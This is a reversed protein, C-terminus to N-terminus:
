WKMNQLLTPLPLEESALSPSSEGVPAAKNGKARGKKASLSPRRSFAQFTALEPLVKQEYYACIRDSICEGVAGSKPAFLEGDFAGEPMSALAEIRDGAGAAEVAACHPVALETDFISSFTASASFPGRPAPSSCLRKRMALIEPPPDSKTGCAREMCLLLTGISALRHSSEEDVYPLVPCEALVAHLRTEDEAKSPLCLLGSSILSSLASQIEKPQESVRMSRPLKLLFHSRTDHAVNKWM